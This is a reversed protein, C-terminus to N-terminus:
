DLPSSDQTAWGVLIDRLMRLEQRRGQPAMSGESFIGANVEELWLSKASVPGEMHTALKEFYKEIQERSFNNRSVLEFYVGALVRLMLISGLLSTRRLKDTSLRGSMIAHMQPFSDTITDFFEKTKQSMEAESLEAELRRGIRGEQGVTLTRILDTVHKASMLKESGRGVRDSNTEVRGELLPHEMVPELARNVVKRTDFISKVSGPIGQANDAIDFFMQRLKVLNEEVYIQLSIRENALRGREHALSEIQRQAGEVAPSEPDVRRANSLASRAKDLETGIQQDALYVGLIRHQGDLIHIESAALRPISAIGFQSGEVEAILDFEFVGPARLILAPSVWDENERLYRAFSLAHNLRIARNGPMPTAPDPKAVLAQLQILSLDLSYVTRGGQKYRTAYFRLSPDYGTVQLEDDQIKKKANSAARPKPNRPSRTASTVVTM